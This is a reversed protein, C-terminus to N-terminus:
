LMGVDLKGNPDLPPLVARMTMFSGRPIKKAMATIASALSGLLTLSRRESRCAPKLDVM